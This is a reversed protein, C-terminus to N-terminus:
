LLERCWPLWVGSLRSAGLVRASWFIFKNATWVRLALNQIPPRPVGRHPLTLNQWAKIILTRAHARHMLIIIMSRDCAGSGPGACRTM